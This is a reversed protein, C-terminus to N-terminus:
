KKIGRQNSRRARHEILKNIESVQDNQNAHSTPLLLPGLPPAAPSTLIVKGWAMSFCFFDHLKIKPVKAYSFAEAM